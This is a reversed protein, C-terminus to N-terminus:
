IKWSIRPENNIEDIESWYFMNGDFMLVSKIGSLPPPISILNNNFGGVILSNRPCFSPMRHDISEKVKNKNKFRSFPSKSRLEHKGEDNSEVSRVISRPAENQEQLVKNSMVHMILHENIQNNDVKKIIFKIYPLLTMVNKTAWLNRQFNFINEPGIVAEESISFQIIVVIDVDSFFTIRLSKTHDVKLFDSEYFLNDKLPNEIKLILSM